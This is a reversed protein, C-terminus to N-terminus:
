YLYIMGEFTVYFMKFGKESKTKSTFKVYLDKSRSMFAVPNTYSECEYYTTRSFPSANERMILHDSCDNTLPITINPILMLLGRGKPCRIHWVCDVGTPYPDPYNPSTIVGTMSTLNGGCKTESFLPLFLLPLLKYVTNLFLIHNSKM